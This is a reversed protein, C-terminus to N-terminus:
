GSILSSVITLATQGAFVEGLQFSDVTGSSCNMCGNTSFLLSIAWDTGVLAKRCGALVAAMHM